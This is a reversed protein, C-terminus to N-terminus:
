QDKEIVGNFSIPTKNMSLVQLYAYGSPTVTLLLNRIDRNDKPTITIQYNKKKISQKYDFDTSTFQIGGKTPDLPATFSRGFFPLYATVSDPTIKVDYGSTLQYLNNGNPFMFRPNFRSDETPIVTRAVFTFRRNNILAAYDQETATVTKQSACSSFALISLILLCGIHTLNKM